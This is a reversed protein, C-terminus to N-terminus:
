SKQMKVKQFLRYAQGTAVDKTFRSFSEKKQFKVGVYLFNENVLKDNVKKESILTKVQGDNEYIVGEFANLVSRAINDVDKQAYEKEVIFFQLILLCVPRQTPFQDELGQKKIMERIKDQLIEKFVKEKIGEKKIKVKDIEGKIDKFADKRSIVLLPLGIDFDFFGKSKSM